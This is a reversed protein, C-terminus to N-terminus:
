QSDNLYHKITRVWFWTAIGVVGILILVIHQIQFINVNLATIAVFTLVFHFLMVSKFTQPHSMLWGWFKTIKEKMTTQKFCINTLQNKHKNTTRNM